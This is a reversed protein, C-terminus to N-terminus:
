GYIKDTYTKLIISTWIACHVNCQLPLVRVQRRHWCASGESLHTQKVQDRTHQRNILCIIFHHISVRDQMHLQNLKCIEMNCKIIHMVQHIYIFWVNMYVLHCVHKRAYTNCKKTFATARYWSHVMNCDNYFRSSKGELKKLTYRDKISEMTMKLGVIELLGTM